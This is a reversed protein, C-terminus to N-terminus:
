IRHFFQLQKKLYRILRSKKNKLTNKPNMYLNPISFSSKLIKKELNRDSNFDECNKHALLAFIEGGLFKEDFRSVDESHNIPKLEDLPRTRLQIIKFGNKEALYRMSSPTFFNLHMPFNGYDIGSRRGKRKFRDSRSNPVNIYILGTNSLHMKANRLMEAPDPLHELTHSIFILDFKEPVRKVVDLFQGYFLQNNCYSNAQNVWSPNLENGWANMGIQQMAWVFGGFGCGIDFVNLRKPMVGKPDISKIHAIVGSAVQIVGPNFEQEPTPDNESRSFSNSYFEDLISEEPMPTFRMHGTDLNVMLQSSFEKYVENFKDSEEFYPMFELNEWNM